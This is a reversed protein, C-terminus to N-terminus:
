FLRTEPFTTLTTVSMEQLTWQDLPLGTETDWASIGAYPELALWACLEDYDNFYQTEQTGNTLITQGCLNKM